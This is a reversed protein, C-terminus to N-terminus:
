EIRRRKDGEETEEEEEEESQTRKKTFGLANTCEETVDTVNIFFDEESEFTKPKGLYRACNFISFPLFDEDNDYFDKFWIFKYPYGLVLDKSFEEKLWRIILRSYFTFVTTMIDVDLMQKQIQEDTFEPFAKKMSQETLVFSDGNTQHILHFRIPVMDKVNFQCQYYYEDGPLKVFDFKKMVTREKNICDIYFTCNESLFNSMETKNEISDFGNFCQALAYLADMPSVVKGPLPMAYQIAKLQDGNFVKDNFHLGDELM